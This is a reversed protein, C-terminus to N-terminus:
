HVGAVYVHILKADPPPLHLLRVASPPLVPFDAATISFPLFVPFCPCVSM